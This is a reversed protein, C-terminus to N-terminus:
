LCLNSIFDFTYDPLHKTPYEKPFFVIPPDLEENTEKNYFQNRFFEQNTNFAIECLSRCSEMYSNYTYLEQYDVVINQKTKEEIEKQILKQIEKDVQVKYSAEQQAENNRAAKNLKTNSRKWNKLKVIENKIEDIFVKLKNIDKKSPSLELIVQLVQLIYELCAIASWTYNKRLNAEYTSNPYVTNAETVYWLFDFCKNYLVDRFKDVLSYIHKNEVSLNYRKAIRELDAKDYDTMTNNKAFLLVNHQLSVLGFNECVYCMIDKVVKIGNIYAETNTPKRQSKKINSM